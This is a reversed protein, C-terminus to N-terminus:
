ILEPDGFLYKSMVERSANVTLGAVSAFGALINGCGNVGNIPGTM